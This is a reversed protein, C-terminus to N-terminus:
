AQTNSPACRGFSHESLVQFVLWALKRLHHTDSREVWGAQPSRRIVM